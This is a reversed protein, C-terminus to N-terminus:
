ITRKTKKPKKLSQAYPTGTKTTTRYMDWVHLPPRSRVGQRGSYFLWDLETDHSHQKRWLEFLASVKRVGKEVRIEAIAMATSIPTVRKIEVM